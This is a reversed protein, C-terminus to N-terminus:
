DGRILINASHILFVILLAMSVPVAIAALPLPIRGFHALLAYAFIVGYVIFIPIEEKLIRM